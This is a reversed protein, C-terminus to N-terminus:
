FNKDLILRQNREDIDGVRKHMKKLFKNKKSFLGWLLEIFHLSRKKRKYKRKV